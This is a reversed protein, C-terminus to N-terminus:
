FKRKPAKKFSREKNRESSILKLQKSIKNTKKKEERGRKEEKRRGEREGEQGGERGEKQLKRIIEAKLTKRRHGEM